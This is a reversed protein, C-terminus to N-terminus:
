SVTITNSTGAFLNGLSDSAVDYTGDSLKVQVTDSAVLAPSVTFDYKNTSANYVVTDITTASAQTGLLVFEDNSDLDTVNFGTNCSAVVAMSFTTGAAIADVTATTDVYGEKELANFGLDDWTLFVNRVAREDADLLQMSCNTMQIDTGQQESESEVNFNGGNFGKALTGGTNQALRMGNTYFEILNWEGFGQKDWLSAHRCNGDAFMFQPKPLGNRITKEVQTSSTNIENENGLAGIDYLGIYPFLSGAKILNDYTTETLTVENNAMPFSVSKSALAMGKKDGWQSKDCTPRGSGKRGTVCNGYNNATAM